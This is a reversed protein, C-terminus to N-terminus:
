PPTALSPVGGPAARPFPVGMVVRGFIAKTPAPDVTNMFDMTPSASRSSANAPAWRASISTSGRRSASDSSTARLTISARPTGAVTLACSSRRAASSPASKTTTANWIPPYRGQVTVSKSTGLRKPRRWVIASVSPTPPIMRPSRVTGWRQARHSSMSATQGSASRSCYTLGTAMLVQAMAARWGFSRWTPRHWETWPVTASSARSRSRGASRIAKRQAPM